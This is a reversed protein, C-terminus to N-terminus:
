NNYFSVKKKSNVNDHSIPKHNDFIYARIKLEESTFWKTTLDYIGGCNIFVM